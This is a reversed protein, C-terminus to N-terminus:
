LLAEAARIFQLLEKETFQKGSTPNIGASPCGELLVDSQKNDHSFNQNSPSSDQSSAHPNVFPEFPDPLKGKRPPSNSLYCCKLIQVNNKPANKQLTPPVLAKRSGYGATPSSDERTKTMSNSVSCESIVQENNPNSLPSFNITPQYKVPNPEPLKIASSDHTKESKADEQDPELLPNAKSKQAEEFVKEIEKLWIEEIIRREVVEEGVFNQTECFLGSKLSRRIEEGNIKKRKEEQSRQEREQSLIIGARDAIGSALRELEEQEKKLEKKTPKRPSIEKREHDSAIGDNREVLPVMLEEQRPKKKKSGFCCKFMEGMCSFFAWCGEAVPIPM